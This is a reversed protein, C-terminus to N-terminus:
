KDKNLVCNPKNAAINSKTAFSKALQESDKVMQKRQKRMRKILDSITPRNHLSQTSGISSNGDSARTKQEVSIYSGCGTKTSKTERRM